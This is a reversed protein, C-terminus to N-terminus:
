SGSLQVPLRARLWERNPSLLPEALPSPFAVFGFCDDDLRCFTALLWEAKNLSVGCVRQKRESWWGRQKKTGKGPESEGTYNRGTVAM